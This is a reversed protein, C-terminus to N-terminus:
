WGPVRAIAGGGEHAIEGRFVAVSVELRAVGSTFGIVVRM